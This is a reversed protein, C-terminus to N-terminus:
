HSTLFLESSLIDIYFGPPTGHFYGDILLLQGQHLTVDGPLIGIGNDVCGIGSQHASATHIASDVPSSARSNKFFAPLDYGALSSEGGSLGDHGGATIQRGSINNVGNARDPV